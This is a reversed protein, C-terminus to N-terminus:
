VIMERWEATAKTARAAMAEKRQLKVRVWKALPPLLGFNFNMPQFRAVGSCSVYRCLAGLATQPPPVLPSKDEALRAANVGALLGTGISEVYGEVGSIQGAFLTAPNKRTQLTPLLCVPANIFSNRHVTGYRLFEARELGPIMRFVRKQEDIKLRTQFGVMGYMTKEVNEPRLQAVAYPVGGTGPNALGIPKLAGFALSMKGRRAVEEVPLCAEFFLNSEFDHCDVVHADVLQEWFANFEEETLPCNLYPGDGKDYRSAFFTKEYDITTSDVIPSVADFFFLNDHGLFSEVWASLSKSTLPGSAVITLKAPDAECVEERILQINTERLLTEEVKESFRRRDVALATGAPVRVEQAIHLLASGLSVLEAKLLGSGTTLSQSKLSNSCVLEALHGTKHAETMRVPRMEHLVARLGRKAVQFAAETGALGGGIIHIENQRRM